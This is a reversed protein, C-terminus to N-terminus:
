IGTHPTRKPPKKRGRMESPPIFKLVRHGYQIGICEVPGALTVYMGEYLEATPYDHLYFLTSADEFRLLSRRSDLITEVQATTGSIFYVREGVRIRNPLDMGPRVEGLINERYGIKEPPALPMKESPALPMKEPPALQMQNWRSELQLQQFKWAAEPSDARLGIVQAFLMSNGFLCCFFILVHLFKKM